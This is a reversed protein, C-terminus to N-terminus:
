CRDIINYLLLENFKKCVIRFQWRVSGVFMGLNGHPAGEFVELGGRPVKFSVM